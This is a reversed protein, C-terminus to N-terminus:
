GPAPPWAASSTTSTWRSGPPTIRLKNNSVRRLAGEVVTRFPHYVPEQIIVEDGVKTYYNVAAALSKVVGPSFTLEPRTVEVGHRHRLWGIISQWYSDPALQYGFVPHQMRRIIAEAVEPICEFDMDAIWLPTLDPRGFFKNLCEHKMDGSGRRDIVRDFDYKTGNM